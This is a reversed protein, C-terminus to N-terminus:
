ALSETVTTHKVLWDKIQQYDLTSNGIALIFDHREQICVQLDLGGELLVFRMMVYATRMNGEQFPHNKILSELLAAAKDLTGPYLDLEEFTAYPRALAASLAQADRVGTVGWFRTNLADHIHLLDEQEIM